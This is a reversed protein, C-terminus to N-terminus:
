VYKKFNTSYNQLLINQLSHYPLLYLKSSLAHLIYTCRKNLDPVKMGISLITDIICSSGVKYSEKVTYTLDSSEPKNYLTRSIFDLFVLTAYALLFLELSQQTIM